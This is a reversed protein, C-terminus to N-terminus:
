TFPPDWKHWDEEAESQEHWRDLIVHMAMGIWSGIVVAVVIWWWEIM